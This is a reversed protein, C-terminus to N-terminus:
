LLTLTPPKSKIAKPKAIELTKKTYLMLLDIGEAVLDFGQVTEKAMEALTLGQLNHMLQQYWKLLCHLEPEVQTVRAMLEEVELIRKGYDEIKEREDVSMLYGARIQSSAHCLDLALSRGQTALKEFLLISEHVGRIRKVLEPSLSLRAVEDDVSPIWGCFWARAMQGRLQYMWSEFEQFKGTVREFRVGGGELPPRIRSKFIQIEELGSRVGLNDFHGVVTISHQHFWEGQYYSWAAYALEPRWESKSAMVIHGNGYPGTESWKLSFERASPTPSYFVRVGLLSALDLVAHKGSFLWSCQALVSVLSDFHLEDNLFIVRPHNALSIMESSKGLVVIAHDPHRRLVMDAWEDARESLSSCHMAIWKFAKSREKFREPLAPVTSENNFFLKSTVPTTGADQVPDGVHIQLLTLLQTTILDIFHIDQEINEDRLWAERYMSWADYSGQTLDERLYDGVKVIAPILTSVIAAKRAHVQAYTWNALIDYRQDIVDGIWRAVHVRPLEIVRDIFSVRTAPLATEKRVIFTVSLKPYLHKVAKIAMLSRFVEDIEGLQVILISELAPKM